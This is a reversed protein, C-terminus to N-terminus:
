ATAGTTGTLDDSAFCFSAAHRAQIDVDQFATLLTAGQTSNSFPDVIIELGGWMGILLDAWNGFFIDGATVQNTVLAQYGNITKNDSMIYGSVGSDRLTKMCYGAEAPNMIYAMNAVDANDSAIATWMDVMKAFTPASAAIEVTNVGDLYKVGKVNNSEGTGYLARNDIALALTTALEQRIFAEMDMTTQKMMSRTIRCKAGVTKMTLGVESLTPESSTPATDEGVWYATMGATQNPINVTGVLGALKTALNMIYSKNRLLEIFSGIRTDEPILTAGLTLNVDGTANQIPARMMDLPLIVGGHNSGGYQKAAEACAEFEFAAKKNAQVDRPNALAQVLNMFSFKQIEDESMGINENKSKASTPVGNKGGQEKLLAQIFDEKSKGNQVYEAALSEAKYEKGLDFIAKVREQEAKLASAGAEERIKNEDITIEPMKDEKAKKKDPESSKLSAQAQAEPKPPEKQSEPAVGFRKSDFNEFKSMDFEQGALALIREGKLCAAIKRNEIVDIFGKEKAEKATFWTEAAIINKLEEDDLGTKSKYAAILTEEVTDLVDAEKRM